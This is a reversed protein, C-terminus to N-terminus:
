KYKIINTNNLEPAIAYPNNYNPIDREKSIAIKWSESNNSM